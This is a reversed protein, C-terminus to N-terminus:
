NHTRTRDTHGEGSRGHVHDFAAQGTRAGARWLRARAQLRESHSYQRYNGQGAGHRSESASLPQAQRAIPTRSWRGLSVAPSEDPGSHLRDIQVADPIPPLEEIGAREVNNNLGPENAPKVDDVPKLFRIMKIKGPTLVYQGLDGDVVIPRLEIKGSLIQGGEMEVEASRQVATLNAAAIRADRMTMVPTGVGDVAGGRGGTGGFQAFAPPGALILAVIAFLRSRNMFAMTTGATVVALDGAAPDPSSRPIRWADTERPAFPPKRKNPAPRGVGGSQQVFTEKRPLTSQCTSNNSLGRGM